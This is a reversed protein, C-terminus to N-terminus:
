WCLAPASFFVAFLRDAPRAASQGGFNMGEDIRKAIGDIHHERRTLGMIQSARLRQEFPDVRFSEDAVLSVIGIREAVSECLSFDSRHNRGFCVTLRWRGTVEGKVALAIEDLTEEICELVKTSDGCAVVLERPVKERANV